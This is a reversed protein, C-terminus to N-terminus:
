PCFYTLNILDRDLIHGEKEMDDNSWKATQEDRILEKREHSWGRVEEEDGNVEEREMRQNWEMEPTNEFYNLMEMSLYM